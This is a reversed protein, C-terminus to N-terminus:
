AKSMAKVINGLIELQDPSSLRHDAEEIYTIEFSDTRTVEKIREVTQWPVDADKKGQILHIPMPLDMAGNLLLNQRGDEILRKTIIYPSDDYDNPLEFFGNVELATKQADSMKEEMWITFDPAAALGILGRVHKSHNKAILLSIWGGMSSGVLLAPRSTCHKLIDLADQAWDSICGEEFKGESQGHGSYDFRIFEQGREKCLNELFIAKTGQMDSRFGGLFLVPPLDSSGATHIHALDPKQDRKLFNM